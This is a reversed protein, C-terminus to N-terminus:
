FRIRIERVLIVGPDAIRKGLSRCLFCLEKWSLSDLGLTGVKGQCWLKSARMGDNPSVAPGLLCVM